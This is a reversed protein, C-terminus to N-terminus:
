LGELTEIYKVYAIGAGGLFSTNVTIQSLKIQTALTKSLVSIEKILSEYLINMELEDTSFFLYIMDLDLMNKFDFIKQALIKMKKQFLTIILKEKIALAQYIDKMTVDEINEVQHFLYPLDEANWYELLEKQIFNNSIIEELYIPRNEIFTPYFESVLSSGIEGAHGTVGRYLENDFVIASGLGPGFKIYLYSQHNAKNYFQLEALALARVNNDMTVKFKFIQQIKILLQEKNKLIPPVSLKRFQYYNERGIIGIGCYFINEAQIQAQSIVQNICVILKDIFKTVVGEEEGLTNFLFQEKALAHGKINVLGVSVCDVEINIGLFYWYNENLDVLIEKRGVRNTIGQVEGKEKIIDMTIMENTLQTISARTLLLKEAIVKRSLPGNSQLISIIRLQNNLKISTKREIMIGRLIEMTKVYLIM